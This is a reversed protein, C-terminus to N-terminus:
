VNLCTRIPPMGIFALPTVFGVQDSLWGIREECGESFALESHLWALLLGLRKWALAAALRGALREWLEVGVGGAAPCHLTDFLIVVCM